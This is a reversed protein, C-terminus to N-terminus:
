AVERKGTVCEFILSKKYEELNKIKDVKFAILKDIIEFKTSIYTCIKKQEQLPPLSIELSMLDERNIKPMGMRLSELITRDIFKRSLFFYVLYDPMIKDTRPTLAYADASCLGRFRPYTVKGLQPNIKGYIIDNEDFLYKGSILGEDKVFKYDLLKGTFKEINGPGIHPYDAYQSDRPDVLGEKVVCVYKLYSIIWNNPIKGIWYVGSEKFLNEQNLGKTVCETIISQKLDNLRVLQANETEILADIESTKLNLFEVIRNQETEEPFPLHYGLLTDVNLTWRNDFSVGKGHAFMTMAWYQTKFFYDFFKPNLDVKARLNVYAPSIVGSVESMNCNAGSYLDMPNLLLDGPKVPNYNDYSAALQGENNSIDRVKIGSRALSLITPNEEHAQEKSIYFCHKVKKIEWNNPIDGIWKVGSYKM